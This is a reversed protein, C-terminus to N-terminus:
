HEIWGSFGEHMGPNMDGRIQGQQAHDAHHLGFAEGAGDDAPTVAFGTGALGFILVLALALTVILFLTQRRM